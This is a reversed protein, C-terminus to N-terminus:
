HYGHRASARLRATARALAAEARSWDMDEPPKRLLDKAREEAAEARGADIDAHAEFTDALITITDNRIEAFGGHVAFIHDEHTADTAILVGPLLTTLLPTHGPCVTFVGDAGPIVAELIEMEVLDQNPACIELKLNAGAM